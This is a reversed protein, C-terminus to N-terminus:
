EGIEYRLGDYSSVQMVHLEERSSSSSLPSFHSLHGLGNKGLSGAHDNSGSVRHHTRSLSRAFQLEVLSSHSAEAVMLHYGHNSWAISTVPSELPGRAGPGPWSSSGGNGGGEFSTRTADGSGYSPMGGLGSRAQRLSSM